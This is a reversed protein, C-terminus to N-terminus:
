RLRERGANVKNGPCFTWGFREIRTEGPLNLATQLEINLSRAGLGGRRRTADLGVDGKVREGLM